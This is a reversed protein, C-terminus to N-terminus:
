KVDTMKMPYFTIDNKASTIICCNDHPHLRAFKIFNKSQKPGLLSTRFIAILYCREILSSKHRPDTAHNILYSFHKKVMLRRTLSDAKLDARKIEDELTEAAPKSEICAISKVIAKQLTHEYEICEIKPPDLNLVPIQIQSCDIEEPPELNLDPIQSSGIQPPDLNIVPIQNQSSSSLKKATIAAQDPVTWMYVLDEILYHSNEDFIRRIVDPIGNVQDAQRILENTIVVEMKYTDITEALINAFAFSFLVYYLKM